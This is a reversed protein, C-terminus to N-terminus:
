LRQLLVWIWKSSFSLVFIVSDLDDSERTLSIIKVVQVAYDFCDHSLVDFDHSKGWNARYSNIRFRGRKRAPQSFCVDVVFRVDLSNGFRGKSIAFVKLLDPELKRGLVLSYVRLFHIFNDTTASSEIDPPTQRWPFIVPLVGVDM